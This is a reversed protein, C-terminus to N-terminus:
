SIVPYRSIARLLFGFLVARFTQLNQHDKGEENFWIGKALKPQRGDPDMTSFDLIFLNNWDFIAVDPIELQEAYKYAQKVFWYANSVFLTRKASRYAEKHKQREEADSRAMANAIDAWRLTDKAKVELIAVDIMMSSVRYSWRIDTRIRGPSTQECSMTMSGQKLNRNIALNVPNLIYLITASLVDAESRLLNSGDRCAVRKLLNDEPNSIESPFNDAVLDVLRQHDEYRWAVLPDIDITSQTSSSLTRYDGPNPVSPLWPSPSRFSEYVTPQAM